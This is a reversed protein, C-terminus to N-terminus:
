PPSPYCAAAPQVVAVARRVGVHRRGPVGRVLPNLLRALPAVVIRVLPSPAAPSDLNQM